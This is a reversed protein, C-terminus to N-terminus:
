ESSFNIGRLSDPSLLFKTNDDKVVKVKGGKKVRDTQLLFHSHLGCKLPMIPRLYQGVTSYQRRSIFVHGYKSLAAVSELRSSVPMIPSHMDTRETSFPVYILTESSSRVTGEECTRYVRLNVLNHRGVVEDTGPIILEYFNRFVERKVKFHGSYLPMLKRMLKDYHKSLGVVRTLVFQGPQLKHVRSKKAYRACKETSLHLRTKWTPCHKTACHKCDCTRRSRFIKRKRRRTVCWSRSEKSMHDGTHCEHCFKLKRRQWVSRDKSTENVKRKSRMEARIRRRGRDTEQNNVETALQQLNAAVDERLM